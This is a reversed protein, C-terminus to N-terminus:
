DLHSVPSAFRAPILRIAKGPLCWVTMIRFERRMGGAM